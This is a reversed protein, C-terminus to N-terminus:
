EAAAALPPVAPGAAAAEATHPARRRGPLAKALILSAAGLALFSADVWAAVRHGNATIQWVGDGTVAANLGPLGLLLVGTLAVMQKVTRYDNSRAFAYAIVLGWVLFYILGTWTLRAAEAGWYLKDLYFLSISAVAIGTTVGVSLRSLRRYFAPSKRGERGHLRREIWMMNGLACLGALSLGLVFYLAKLAIGGFTAYHLPTVANTVRNAATQTPIDSKQVPTGTVGSIYDPKFLALERDPVYLLEYIAAADAWNHIIIREPGGEAGPLTRDALGDLPQMPAAIGAPDPPAGIVKAILTETDGKFALVAVIPSLIAVIGLFAGTFAMMSFFPLGWLGAVKHTDQWQLRVSRWYRLSFLEQFIKTHAIVGTLISLMLIVGALGVIARGATRGGLLDPWMLDRHFDLLWVSLGEGRHPLVALTAPDWRRTVLLDRSGDTHHVTARAEHYPTLPAPYAYDLFHLDGKAQMEEVFATFTTHIPPGDQTVTLRKAPDEWSKIGEDFLAVCGSFAVVFLFLGLTIGAWSHLDYIRLHRARNM